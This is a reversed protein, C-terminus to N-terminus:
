TTLSFVISRFSTISGVANCYHLITLYEASYFHYQYFTIIHHNGCELYFIPKLGQAPTTSGTFISTGPCNNYSSFSAVFTSVDKHMDIPRGQPSIKEMFAETRYNRTNTDLYLYRNSVLYQRAPMTEGNNIYSNPQIQFFTINFPNLFCTLHIVGFCLHYTVSVKQTQINIIWVIMVHVKNVETILKKTQVLKVVPHMLVLPPPLMEKPYMDEVEGIWVDNIKLETFLDFHIGHTTKIKPTQNEQRLNFGCIKAVTIM